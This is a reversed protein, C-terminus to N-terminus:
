SPEGPPTPLTEIAPPGPPDAKKKREPLVLTVKNGDVRAVDTGEPADFHGAIAVSLAHQYESAAQRQRTRIGELLQVQSDTLTITKQKM